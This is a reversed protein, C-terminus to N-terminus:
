WRGCELVVAAGIDASRKWGHVAVRTDVLAGCPMSHGRGLVAAEDNRARWKVILTNGPRTAIVVHRCEGVV